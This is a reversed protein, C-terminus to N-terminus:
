QKMKKTKTEKYPHEKLEVILFTLPKDGVNQITHPREPDSFGCDGAQMDYTESKGDTYQVVAKGPTLLYFFHAPHTHVGSKENPKLTVKAASILTTDILKKEMGPNVKNWEQGATESASFLILMVSFAIFVSIHRM